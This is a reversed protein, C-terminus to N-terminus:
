PRAVMGPPPPSPSPPSLHPRPPTRLRCVRRRRRRTARTAATSAPCSSRVDFLLFSDPGCHAACMVFVLQGKQFPLETRYRTGLAVPVSFGEGTFLDQRRKLNAVMM